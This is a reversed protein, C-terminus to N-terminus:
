KNSLLFYVLFFTRSIVEHPSIHFDTNYTWKKICELVTKVKSDQTIDSKNDLDTELEYKYYFQEDLKGNPLYKSVIKKNIKM